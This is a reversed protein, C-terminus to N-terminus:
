NVFVHIGKESLAYIADVEKPNIKSSATTESFSPLILHSAGLYFCPLKIAQKTKGTLEVSPHVHGCVVWIKEPVKGVAPKHTFCFPGIELYEPILEIDLDFYQEQPLIDHNGQILTIKMTRFQDRWNRFFERDGNYTNHFLDGLIILREPNFQHILDSLRLLDNEIISGPIPIGLHLDAILLTKEEEWYIGRLHSLVLNQGLLSHTTTKM